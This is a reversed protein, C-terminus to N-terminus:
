ECKKAISCSDGALFRDAHQDRDGRWGKGGRLVRLVCEM